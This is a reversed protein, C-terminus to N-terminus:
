GPLGLGSKVSAVAVDKLIDRLLSASEAGMKGLLAVIRKKALPTRPTESVLDPLTGVLASREDESLRDDEAAIEKATEIARATWPYAHGCGRCFAPREYRFDMSGYENGRIQAQCEACHTLTTAGCRVCFKENSEPHKTAFTNVVHGNLCIQAADYGVNDDDGPSGPVLQAM